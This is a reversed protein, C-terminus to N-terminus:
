FNFFGFINKSKVDDDVKEANIKRGEHTILEEREEEFLGAHWNDDFIVELSENSMKKEREIENVYISLDLDLTSQANTRSLIEIDSDELYNEENLLDKLGEFSSQMLQNPIDVKELPLNRLLIKSYLRANKSSNEDPCEVVEIESDSSDSSCKELSFHNICLNLNEECENVQKSSAMQSFEKKPFVVEFEM